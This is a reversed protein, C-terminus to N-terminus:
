NLKILCATGNHFCCGCGCSMRLNVVYAYIQLLRCMMCLGASGLCLLMSCFGQCEALTRLVMGHKFGSLCTRTSLRQAVALVRKAPMLHVYCVCWLRHLVSRACCACDEHCRELVTLSQNGIHLCLVILEKVVGEAVFSRLL